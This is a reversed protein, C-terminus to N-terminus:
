PGAQDAAMKQALAILAAKNEVNNGTNSQTGSVFENVGLAESAKQLFVPDHTIEWAYAFSSWIQYHDAFGYNGDSPIWTCYPPQAMDFPGVAMMAWPGHYVPSWVLPGIMAYFSKRLVANLRVTRENDVGLFATERLGVLANETIACEISQRCRYQSGFVNYQPTAQIVDSCQAQATEVLDLIAHLWPRVQARWDDDALSYAVLSADLGWSEGRGFPVGTHPFLTVYHQLALLGTPVINGYLDQPQLPFGFRFGEAQAMMDDKAIADNGLWILVKASRTYRVLHQLDIAHFNSLQAEYWPKKGQAAVAQVQFAPAQGYGFPDAAWLMPSNYWWIPLYDGGQAHVVWESVNTHKGDHDFLVNPQRDTYMRHTLEHTRYGERSASWAV